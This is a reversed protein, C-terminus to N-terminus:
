FVVAFQIQGQMIVALYKDMGIRINVGCESLQKDGLAAGNVAFHNGCTCIVVIFNGIGGGLWM